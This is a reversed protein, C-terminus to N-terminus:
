KIKSNAEFKLKTDDSSLISNIVMMLSIFQYNDLKIGDGKNNEKLMIELDPVINIGNTSDLTLELSHPKKSFEKFADIFSSYIDYTNAITIKKSEEDPLESFFEELIISFQNKSLKKISLVKLALRLKEIQSSTYNINEFEKESWSFSILINKLFIEPMPFPMSDYYSSPNLEFDAMFDLYIESTDEVIDSYLQEYSQYGWHKFVVNKFFTDLFNHIANIEASYIFSSKLFISNGLAIDFNVNYGKNDLFRYFDIDIDTFLKIMLKIFEISDKDISNKSSDGNLPPNQYTQLFSKLISFDLGKISCNSPTKISKNIDEFSPIKFFKSLSVNFKYDNAKYGSCQLEEIKLIEKSGYRSDYIRLGKIIFSDKNGSIERTSISVNANPDINKIFSTVTSHFSEGTIFLDNGKLNFSFFIFFSFAVFTKNM